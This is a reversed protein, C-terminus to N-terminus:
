GGDGFFSMRNERKDSRHYLQGMLSAQSYFSQLTKGRPSSGNEADVGQLSLMYGTQGTGGEINFGINKEQNNTGYKAHLSGKLRGNLSPKRTIIRIVGGIADSGYFVSSPSRLVEIKEIDMPNVFSASPGTRRESTIRANDLLLLIRRRALGRINPVLSFGGAGMNSVGPLELVGEAVNSPMNEEINEKAMVAEAAPISASAEPYRFATVTVEEKQLFSPILQILFTKGLDKRPISIQKEMFDPHIIELLIKEAASVELHFYGDKGSLTKRDGARELVVADAIPKGAQTIIRGKIETGQALIDVGTFGLIFLVVKFLNSNPVIKRM